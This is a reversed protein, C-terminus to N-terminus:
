KEEPRSILGILGFIGAVLTLTIALILIDM